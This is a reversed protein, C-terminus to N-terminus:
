EQDGIQRLLGRVDQSVWREVVRGGAVRYISIGQVKVPRGNQYSGVLTWIWVARDEIAFLQDTLVAYDSFVTRIKNVRAEFSAYGSGREAEGLQLDEECDLRHDVFDPSVIEVVAAPNSGNWVEEQLRKIVAVVDETDRASMESPM